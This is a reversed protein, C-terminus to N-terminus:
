KEEEFTSFTSTRSELLRLTEELQKWKEKAQKLELDLQEWEKRLQQIELEWQQIELEWQQIELEWQQIEIDNKIGILEVEFLKLFSALRKKIEPKEEIKRWAVQGFSNKKEPDLFAWIILVKGYNTLFQDQYTYQVVWKVAAQYDRPYTDLPARLSDIGMKDEPTKVLLTYFWDKIPQINITDHSLEFKISDQTIKKTEQANTPEALLSFIVMSLPIAIYKWTRNIKEQLDTIKNRHNNM